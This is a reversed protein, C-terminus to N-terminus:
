YRISYGGSVMLQYYSIAHDIQTNVLNVRANYLINRADILEIQNSDGLEFGSVVAEYNETAASVQQAALTLSSKMLQYQLYNAEAEMRIKNEAEILSYQSQRYQAKAIQHNAQNSMGLPLDFSVNVMARWSDNEGALLSAESDRQWHFIGAVSPYLSGRTAKVGLNAVDTGIRASQLASRNQLAHDMLEDITQELHIEPIRDDLDFGAGLPEGMIMNLSIQSMKVGQKAQQIQQSIETLSVQARLVDKKQLLGLDFMRNVMKANEEVLDRAAESISLIGDMKILNYYARITELKTYERSENVMLESIEISKSAIKQASQLTGGTFLPWTIDISEQGMILPQITATTTSDIPFVIETNNRIKTYGANLSPLRNSFSQWKQYGAIDKDFKIRQHQPNNKLARAIAESCNLPNSGMAITFYILFFITIRMHHEQIILKFNHDPITM